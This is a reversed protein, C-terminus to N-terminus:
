TKSVIARVVRIKLDKTFVHMNENYFKINKKYLNFFVTTIIVM